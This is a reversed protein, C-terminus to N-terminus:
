TDKSGLVKSIARVKRRQDPSLEALDFALDLVERSLPQQRRYTTRDFNFLDKMNVKLAAAIRELVALSPVKAGREVASMFENSIRAKEALAAQTFTNQKRFEYIRRGLQRGLDSM